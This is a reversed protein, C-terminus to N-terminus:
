KGKLYKVVCNYLIIKASEFWIKFINRPQLGIPCAIIIFMTRAFPNLVSKKSFFRSLFKLAPEDGFEMYGRTEEDVKLWIEPVTLLKIGKNYARITFEYDSAYHPILRPYFGGTKIFDRYRFFLGRTSLCNIEEGAAACRFTYNKWDVITGTDILAGSQRSYCRSQVMVGGEINKFYSVARDLFDPMFETDDNVLMILDEASVGKAALWEYGKQLSGAWWLNGDGRVVSLNKIKSAVMEATGDTSGDDILVLHYNQYTQSVLCNIFRETVNKRNHAPLIIYLKQM